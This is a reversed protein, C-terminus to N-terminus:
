EGETLSSESPESFERIGTALKTYDLGAMYHHGPSVKVTVTEASEIEEGKDSNEKAEALSSAKIERIETKTTHKEVQYTKM